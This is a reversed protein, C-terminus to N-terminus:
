RQAPDPVDFAEIRFTGMPQDLVVAKGTAM